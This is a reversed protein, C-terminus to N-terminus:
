SEWLGLTKLFAEGRQAATAHVAVRSSIIKWPDSGKRAAKTFSYLHGLYTDIQGANLVKEMEHCANLDNPYNPFPEWTKGNTTHGWADTLAHQCLKLGCAEAIKVRQIDPRM